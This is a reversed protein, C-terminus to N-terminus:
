NNLLAIVIWVQYVGHFSVRHEVICHYSLGSFEGPTLQHEATGHCSQCVGKPPAPDEAIDHCVHFVRRLTVQATDLWVWVVSEKTLYLSNLFGRAIWTHLVGQYQVQTLKSRFHVTSNRVAYGLNCSITKKKGTQLIHSIDIFHYDSREATSSFPWLSPIRKWASLLEWPLIRWSQITM